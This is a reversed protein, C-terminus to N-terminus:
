NLLLLSLYVFIAKRWSIGNALLMAIALIITGTWLVVLVSMLLSDFASHTNTVLTGFWPIIQGLPGYTFHFDRGSISGQQFMAVLGLWGSSDLQTQDIGFRSRMMAVGAWALSFIIVVLVKRRGDTM